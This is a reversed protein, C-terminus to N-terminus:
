KDPEGDKDPSKGFWVVAFGNYIGIGIASWKMKTWIDKNLIVNNHHMSKKWSELAYEATMIFDKYQPDSSGAAIEFGDDEYNTLERPKDWMCKSQKHDNTYCCGKWKGKDCWSHPNCGNKLDPKNISLDKCHEQAVYTLSKSLPIAPLNKSKRYKMILDYLKMEEATIKAEVTKKEQAFSNIFIASFIFISFINKM